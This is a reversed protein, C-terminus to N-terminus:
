SDKSMKKLEVMLDNIRDLSSRIRKIRDSFDSGGDLPNNFHPSGTVKGHKHSMYLPKRGNAHELEVAKKERFEILSVIKRDKSKDTDM